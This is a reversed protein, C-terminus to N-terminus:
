READAALYDASAVALALGSFLRTGARSLGLPM